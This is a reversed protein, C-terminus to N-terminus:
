LQDEARRRAEDLTRRINGWHGGEWYVQGCDPCVWLPGPADKPVYDKGALDGPGAPHLPAGNCLSCREFRPELPLGLSRHLDALWDATEGPGLLHARLGRGRARRALELDRTLLLRKEAQARELLADDSGERAYTTDADLMRLWSALSGLMRDLLFRM